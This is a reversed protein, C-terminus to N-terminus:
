PTMRPIMRENRFLINELANEAINKTTVRKLPIRLLVLVMGCYARQIIYRDGNRCENVKTRWSKNSDVDNLIRLYYPM